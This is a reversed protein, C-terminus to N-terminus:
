SEIQDIFIKGKCFPLDDRMNYTHVKLISGSNLNIDGALILIFKFYSKHHKFSRKISCLQTISKTDYSKWTITSFQFSQHHHITRTTQNVSSLRKAKNRTPVVTLSEWWRSDRVRWLYSKFRCQVQTWAKNFSTTCYHYCSCYKTDAKRLIDFRNNIEHTM